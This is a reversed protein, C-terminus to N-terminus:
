QIPKFGVVTRDVVVLCSDVKKGEWTTAEGMHVVDVAVDQM